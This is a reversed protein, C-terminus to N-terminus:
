RMIVAADRNGEKVHRGDSSLCWNPEGEIIEFPASVFDKSKRWIEARQNSHEQLAATRDFSFNTGNSKFSKLV